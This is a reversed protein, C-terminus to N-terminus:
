VVACEPWAVVPRGRGLGVRPPRRQGQGPRACGAVVHARQEAGRGGRVGAARVPGAGACVGAVPVVAPVPLADGVLVSVPECAPVVPVVVPLAVVPLAVVPLAVVPLAAPVFGVSEDAV